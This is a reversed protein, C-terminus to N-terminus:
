TKRTWISRCHQERKEMDAPVRGFSCYISWHSRARGSITCRTLLGHDLRESMSRWCVWCRESTMSWGPMVVIRGRNSPQMVAQAKAEARPPTTADLICRSEHMALIHSTSTSCCSDHGDIKLRLVAFLTYGQVKKLVSSKDSRDKKQM